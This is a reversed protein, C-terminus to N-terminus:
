LATWAKWIIAALLVVEIASGILYYAWTEGICSAIISIAYLLALTINTWRNLRQPLALVGYIMLSPIVVYATTLALFTQSVEFIAVKGQMAAQLIDARYFGFIDVYAFVFLMATWLSAVMLRPPVAQDQHMYVEMPRSVSTGGKHEQRNVQLKPVPKRTEIARRVPFAAAWRRLVM